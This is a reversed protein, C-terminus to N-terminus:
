ELRELKNYLEVAKSYNGTKEYAQAIERVLNVDIKRYFNEYKEEPIDWYVFGLEISKDIERVAEELRGARLYYVALNWHPIAVNENIAISKKGIEEAKEPQNNMLYLGFLDFYLEQRNPSLQIAELLATEGKKFFDEKNIHSVLDSFIFLRYLRGEEWSHRAYKPTWAAIKGTIETSINIFKKYEDGYAAKINLLKQNVNFLNRAFEPGIFPALQLVDDCHEIDSNIFHHPMCRTAYYAAQVPKATFQFLDFIGVIILVYIANKKVLPSISIKANILHDSSFIASIYALLIFFLTYSTETDFTFLNNIFYAIFFGSLVFIEKLKNQRKKWLLYFCIIFISLYFLFGFVGGEILVDLIKNHVNEFWIGGYEYEMFSPDYYKDAPIRFNQLGWASLPSELFAKFAMEWSLFRGTISPDSAVVTLNYLPGSKKIFETNRVSLLFIPFIVMLILVSITAIRIKKNESFLLYAFLLFGIAAFLGLFSARNGTAITSLISIILVFIEFIRFYKNDEKIILYLILFVNMLLFAAYTAINYITSAYRIELFSMIDFKALFAVNYFIVLFCSICILRFIWKWNDWTKFVSSLVIFFIFFHLLTLFGTIRGSLGFFSTFPDVGTFMTIFLTLIFLFVSINVLSLRPNYEPKKRILLLYAIFIIDILAYLTMVRPLIPAALLQKGTVLPVFLVLYTGFTIIKLYIKELSLKNM